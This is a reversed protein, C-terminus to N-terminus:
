QISFIIISHYLNLLFCVQFGPAMPAEMFPAGAAYMGPARMPGGPRMVSMPMARANPPLRGAAMLRPDYGAAAAAAAAANANPPFAGHPPMGRPMAAFRPGMAHGLYPTSYGVFLLKKHVVVVVLM